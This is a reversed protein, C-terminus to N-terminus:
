ARAGAKPRAKAAREREATVMSQLWAVFAQVEPRGTARPTVVAFYARSAAATTRSLGFPAVLEKSRLMEDVLPVRGLAVGQGAVAAQIIQHYQTFQLTGAPQPMEVKMTEFWVPWTLWVTHPVGDYELLVARALDEPRELKLRAQVAPSVVPLVREGFLRIAGRGAMAPPCYRVAIDIGERELDQFRNEAVLRVQVGPQVGQFGALRPVLWLSAFTVTTSVTLSAAERSSRVSATAARLGDLAGRVAKYYRQGEDTLLLARTRRHFLKVGLQEELAQVQRSIASQTLFLEAGAKTFSLHRAAAEFGKLLDLAPLDRAMHM